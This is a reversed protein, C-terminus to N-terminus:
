LPGRLKGFLLKFVFNRASDEVHLWTGFTVLLVGTLDSPVIHVRCWQWLEQDAETGSNYLVEGEAHNQVAWVYSGPSTVM